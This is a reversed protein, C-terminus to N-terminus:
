VREKEIQSSVTCALDMSDWKYSVAEIINISWIKINDDAYVLKLLDNYNPKFGNFKPVFRTGLRKAREKMIEDSLLHNQIVQGSERRDNYINMTQDNDVVM